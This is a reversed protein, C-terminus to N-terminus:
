EPHETIFERPVADALWVKANGAYFAVGTEVL